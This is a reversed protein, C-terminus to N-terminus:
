DVRGSVKRPAVGGRRSATAGLARGLADERTPCPPRRAAGFAAATRPPLWLTRNGPLGGGRMARAPSAVRHSLVAGAAVAVAGPRPWSEVLTKWAAQGSGSYLSIEAETAMQFYHQMYFSQQSWREVAHRLATRAKEPDDASLHLVYSHRAQLSTAAFLDGREAAEKVFKPLRRSMERLRGLLFLARLSYVHVVDLEWTVGTCQERLIEEAEQGLEWGAEWRGEMFASIGANLRALGIAHPQRTREALATAKDVLQQTRRRAPWGGLYSSYGSENAMARAIRYPEGAELALLLHRTQFDRGRITDILSLGASVSWCADIRTLSDMPIETVARERFSLGRLRLQLRRLLFSLLARRPSSPLTMGIRDLVKGLVSLGKDVHGSM